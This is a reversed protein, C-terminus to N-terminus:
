RLKRNIETSAQKVSPGRDANIYIYITSPYPGKLPSVDTALTLQLVLFTAATQYVGLYITSGFSQYYNGKFELFIRGDQELQDYKPTTSNM